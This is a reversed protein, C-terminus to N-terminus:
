RQSLDRDPPSRVDLEVRTALLPVDVRVRLLTPPPAAGDRRALKRRWWYFSPERLDQQRCWARISLGSGAQRRLVRRWFAAKNRDRTATRMM